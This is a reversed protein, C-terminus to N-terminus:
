LLIPIKIAKGNMGPIMSWVYWLNDYLVCQTEQSLIYWRSSYQGPFETGEQKVVVCALTGWGGRPGFPVGRIIM